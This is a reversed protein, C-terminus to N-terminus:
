LYYRSITLLLAAATHVVALSVAGAAVAGGWRPGAGHVALGVLAGYLALLPFLYRVQEFTYTTAILYGYAPVAIVVLLGAAMLLYTALEARRPRLLARSLMLARAALALLVAWVWLAASVVRQSFSYDLWGFEGVLKRFWVDYVAYDGPIKDSLFPLRPVYFQALYSLTGKPTAQRGTVNPAPTGAALLPRDWAFRTVMVYAVVPLAATAAATTLGRRLAARPLRLCLVLAGFLAGPVLGLFTLKTLVGIGILGGVVAMRPLTPGYRFSRALAAFLAASVTFLLADANVGSGIFGFMPQFAVALAATPAALPTGPLLSRVFDFVFLVTLASLLVSLLRLAQLKWLADAGVVDAVRYAVAGLAYYAPPQISTGSPGGGDDARSAADLTARLAQESGDPWPPRGNQRNGIVQSFRSAGMAADLESSLTRLPGPKPAEGTLALHEAYAYHLPEDPVQYPPTVLSWTLTVAFAVVSCAVALRTLIRPAAAGAPPGDSRDSRHTGHQDAPTM